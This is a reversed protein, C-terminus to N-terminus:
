PWPASSSVSLRTTAASQWPQALDRGQLRSKGIHRAHRDLKRPICIAIADDIGCLSAYCDHERLGAHHPGKTGSVVKHMHFVDIIQSQKLQEITCADVKTALYRGCHGTITTQGSRFTNSM